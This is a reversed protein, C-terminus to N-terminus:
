LPPASPPAGGGSMCTSILPGRKSPYENLAVLNLNPCSWFWAFYQVSTLDPVDCRVGWELHTPKALSGYPKLVSARRQFENEENHAGDNKDSRENRSCEDYGVGGLM